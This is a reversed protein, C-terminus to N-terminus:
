SSDFATDRLPARRGAIPGRSAEWFTSLGNATVKGTEIRNSLLYDPTCAEWTKSEWPLAESATLLESGSVKMCHLRKADQFALFSVM